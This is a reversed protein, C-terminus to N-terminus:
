REGFAGEISLSAPPPNASIGAVLGGGTFGKVQTRLSSVFSSSSKDGAKLSFDQLFSNCVKAATVPSSFSSDRQSQTVLRSLSDKSAPHKKCLVV